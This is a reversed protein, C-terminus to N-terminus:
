DGLNVFGELNRLGQGSGQGPAGFPLLNGENRVLTLANEILLRKVSRAQNDNLDERINEISVPEFRTIGLRYKWRLVRKVSEHLSNRDLRGKTGAVKTAAPNPVDPEAASAAPVNLWAKITKVSADVDSPLLLGDVGAALALAEVEGPAHHKTVGKMELGDTLILGNFNLENRLLDTVVPRSLTTPTKPAPDLAPVQLHAVMVSGVGQEILIKFPFLEVSDLRQRTHNVVPLDYHSDVDTDGHGPFHKASALVGNDQLGKMYNWAKAAVRHRDEGFSRFGIVPNNPNNNVDAVPAFNVNVGIRKCHRAIEAGMRYILQDNKVAGLLLQRPFSLATERLRMGLGWEGDISVFLPVKGAAAQYRNTLEVQKEPTGEHSPNFFCIGGAHYKKILHEVTAEYDTDKDVHARLWILQGLREDENMSNFVSDVWARERLAHEFLRQNNVNQRNFTAASTLFLALIAILLTTLKKM